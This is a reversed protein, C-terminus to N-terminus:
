PYVAHMLVVDYGRGMVLRGRVGFAGEFPRRLSLAILIGPSAIADRRGALGSGLILMLWTAPEPDTFVVSTETVTSSQM